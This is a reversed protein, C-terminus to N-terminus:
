KHQGKQKLVKGEVKCWHFSKDKLDTISSIDTDGSECTNPPLAKLLYGSNSSPLLTCGEHIANTGKHSDWSLKCEIGARQWTFARSFDAM